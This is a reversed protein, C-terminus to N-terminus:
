EDERFLFIGLLSAVLTAIVISWGSSMVKSLLVSLLAGLGAIFGAKINDVIAPVLLSIFMAYLAISMSAGLQAPIFAALLGGLMTSIIWAGWATIFLGAVFYNYYQEQEDVPQFSAVAFTEDTVLFSLWAKWPKKFSQFREGLTFGLVFYRLNLIFTAVVIEMAASGLAYMNIAMFQGAGAYVFVSMLTADLWTIGSQVALVGFSLGLPLYGMAIPLAAKCGQKFRLAQSQKSTDIQNLM